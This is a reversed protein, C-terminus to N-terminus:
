QKTVTEQMEANKDKENNKPHFNVYIFIHDSATQWPAPFSIQANRIVMALPTFVIYFNNIIM